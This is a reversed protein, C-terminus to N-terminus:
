SEEPEAAQVTEFVVQVSRDLKVTSVFFPKRGTDQEVYCEVRHLSEGTQVTQNICNRVTCTRCHVTEGCGEELRSYVCELAEGGLLGHTEREGKGLMDAMEQNAALIRTNDDLILVPFEFRDLYGGLSLGKWQRSFHEACGACMGHSVLDNDLPEQDGLDVRCYSCITKM